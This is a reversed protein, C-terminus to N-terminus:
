LRHALDHDPPRVAAGAHPPLVQAARMGPVFKELFNVAAPGQLSLDHLDDDVIMAANRGVVAQTLTEHGAGSGHVVMWANPTLRYLICDETFLGAENLMCAYASKGPYIKSVDRTTAYHLIASSHPGVLYMKKLGSVDMLGAKTRIAVHDLAMDHAYTWATGMGNWDELKSGLARHRDALVSYRWSLAM